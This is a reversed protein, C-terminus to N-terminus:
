FGYGEAVTAAKAEPTGAKPRRQRMTVPRLPSLPNGTLNETWAPPAPAEAPGPPMFQGAPRFTYGMPSPGVAFAGGPGLTSGLGDPSSQLHARAIRDLASIVNPGENQPQVYTKGAATTVPKPTAPPGYAM